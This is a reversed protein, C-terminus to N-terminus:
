LKRSLGLFLACRTRKKVGPKQTISAMCKLGVYRNAMYANNTKKQATLIRKYKGVSRLENGWGKNKARIEKRPKRTENEKLRCCEM